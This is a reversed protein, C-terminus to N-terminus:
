ANVSIPQTDKGRADTMRVPGGLTYSLLAILLPHTITDNFNPNKIFNPYEALHAFSHLFAHSISRNIISSFEDILLRFSSANLLRAFIACGDRQLVEVLRLFRAETGENM